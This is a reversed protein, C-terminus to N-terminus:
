LLVPSCARQCSPLPVQAGTAVGSTSPSDGLSPRFGPQRAATQLDPQSRATGASCTYCGGLRNHCLSSTTNM